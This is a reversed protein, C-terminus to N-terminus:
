GFFVVMKQKCFENMVTEVEDDIEQPGRDWAEQTLTVVKFKKLIESPLTPLRQMGFAPKRLLV